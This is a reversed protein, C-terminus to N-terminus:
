ELLFNGAAAPKELTSEPAEAEDKLQVGSLQRRSAESLLYFLKHAAETISLGEQRVNSICNRDADTLGPKPRYTLYIGLSDPSSLGPREGILVAVMRAGLLEGIEDGIAVRGQEVLVIPGTRWGAPKLKTLIAELLPIANRHVGLTSLGDAIVFVVDCETPQDAAWSQLRHRSEWDLQRGLDPRQLYVNRDAAASHLNIVTHSQQILQERLSASAFPLHVADRARAHAFQFELLPKTPLSVGARGLAIRAPTFQRLRQWPNAIVPTSKAKTM